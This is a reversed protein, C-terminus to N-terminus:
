KVLVKKDNVIYIGKPLSRLNLAGANSSVKVGTLTFVSNAKSSVSGSVMEVGDGGELIGKVDAIAKALANMIDQTVTGANLLTEDEVVLADLRDVVNALGALTNYRCTDSLETAYMQLESLNWYEMNSTTHIIYLRVGAYEDGLDIPEPSRYYTNDANPLNYKKTELEEWSFESEPTRSVMFKVQDPTDHWSNGTGAGDCRGTFELHFERVPKNFNVQLYETGSSVTMATTSHFYTMLNGDILYDLSGQDNWTCNASLQSASTILKDYAKTSESLEKAEAILAMLKNKNPQENTYTLGDDALYVIRSNENFVPWEDEGLTQRWMPDNTNGGNLVYCLEGTACKAIADEGEYCNTKTGMSAVLTPYTTYCNTLKAGAAEGAIGGTQAHTTKLEIDGAVFVNKIITGAAEGLLGGLRVGGEAMTNEVSVNVLGLNQITASGCRGFLGAEQPKDVSVKLNKIIYGQGDFTGGFVMQKVGCSTDDAWEGIPYFNSMGSMDIDNMLKGKIFQNGNRVLTSFYCLNFPNRIEYWGDVPSMAGANYGCVTCIGKDNFTHPDRNTTGETNSYVVSGKPTGDCNEMGTAYVQKHTNDLLPHDDEDLTQYWITEGLANNIEYCLKGSKLDEEVVGAFCGIITGANTLTPHTTWCGTVTSSATEGCLGNCHANETEVIIEGFTFCNSVPTLHAEGALVGARYSSGDDLTHSIVTANEIGINRLKANITRSFLGAESGDFREVKLNKIVYGQGDFEGGYSRQLSNPVDSYIGIPEFNKVITLDIDNMLRGNIKTDGANVTKAFWVLQSPTTIQYYGEVLEPAIGYHLQYYDDSEAETILALVEEESANGASFIDQMAYIKDQIAVQEEASALTGYADQLNNITEMLKAYARKCSVFAPYIDSFRKILAYKQEATQASAVDNVCAVLRDKLDSSFNPAECYDYLDPVFDNIVHSAMEQMSALVDDMAAEALYNDMEGLYYLQLNGFFSNNNLAYVGLNRSGITLTDSTVNVLIRNDYYDADIANSVGEVATPAYGLAEGQSDYRPGFNGAKDELVGGESVDEESILDSYQTKVLNMMDNAFIIGVYNYAGLSIGNGVETYGPLVLEYIGPKLGKITQSFEHGNKKNFNVLYKTTEANPTSLISPNPRTTWGDFNKNSFDANVILKSLETGPGYGLAIADNYLKKAFEIELGVDSASLKCEDIIYFYSGNPFTENPEVTEKLYEELVDRWSLSINDNAELEATLQEITSVYTEYAAKSNNLATRTRALANYADLFEQFGLPKLERLATAYEAVLKREVLITDWMMIENEIVSSILEPFDEENVASQYEGNITEYVLGHTSDWVPYVDKGITQYWSVNQVSKNNLKWCLAGNEAEDVINPYNNEDYFFCNTLAGSAQCMGEYTSWCNVLKGQAAEGCIGGAQAHATVLSIFGASFCNEITGGNMEGAFVGCRAAGNQFITANVVGLNKIRSEKYGRGVLGAEGGDDVVINLDKLIHFQGDITGKYGISVAGPVDSYYGIPPFNPIESMEIDNMIRINTSPNGRNVYRSVYRLEMANTVEYWGDATPTVVYGEQGCISCYGEEDYEHPPITPTGLENSYTSQGVDKGDCRLTGVAYVQKHTNDQVPYGDEGLTQYWVIKSQDGNLQYCLKGNSISGDAGVAAFSNQPTESKGGYLREFTTYCNQITSLNAEGALGGVEVEDCDAVLPKESFVVLEGATFCNTMTSRHFEGALVGTRVYANNRVTANVVGFNKLTAFVARGFLGTEFALDVTVTLNKIIHGQGDFIGRYDHNPYRQALAGDDTYRGIPTFNAVGSMDIDATLRANANTQGSNVSDSFAILDAPTGIQYYGAADKELAWMPLAM